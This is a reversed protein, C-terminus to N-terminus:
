NRFSDMLNKHINIKATDIGYARNAFSIGNASIQSWLESDAYFDKVRKAFAAPTDTIGIQVMETLGMGEVAMSTAVTPLGNALAHIVKGKTGAGYRLPAVNVRIGDMLAELDEVFGHVVIDECALDQIEKPTKSGVINFIVGPIMDRLLPMIDAVFYNVADVNPSHQFGGVFIVGSRADFQVRSPRIERSFPLHVVREVGMKQLMELETSSVVTTLDAQKMLELEIAKLKKSEQEIAKDNKLKAERELRLFHLDVTNFVIKAQPCNQRLSHIHKQTVMPRFSMVMDYSSGYTIVHDDVSKVYPHYLMQVGIRQLAPTYKDMFAYNDEPIFTVAWGMDIFAKMLNYSDISGSDQDPTPTCADIFLVRGVSNRDRELHPEVGNPKHKSLTDKWRQLFKKGNAAQYAKIGQTTDTGSTVGEFHIVESLPQYIVQLGKERVRMALDTDEYYAPAYIEDFGALEQWLTGPVMIAAGSIYDAQRAYNFQPQKPDQRSGYNWASGDRWVIGGAEQLLGDPYILKSGALGCSPFATFTHLLEDLWGPTVQTDNNLFFLYEGKAHRAGNNCSRLFGLNKPNVIVQLNKVQQLTQVSDDPSCDDMVIVEFSAKPLHDCISKLCALTYEVKGYAPILVSVQPNKHHPIGISKPRIEGITPTKFIYSKLNSNKLLHASHRKYEESDYVIETILRRNSQKNKLIELYHNREHSQPKRALAIDFLSELFQQDTGKSLENSTFEDAETIKENFVADVPTLLEGLRRFTLDLNFRIKSKLPEDAQSIAVKYLTISNEFDKNRFAANARTLASEGPHTKTVPKM